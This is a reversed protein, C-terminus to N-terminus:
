YDTLPRCCNPSESKLHRAADAESNQSRPSRLPAQSMQFCGWVGADHTTASCLTCQLAPQATGRHWTKGPNESHCSPMHVCCCILSADHCVTGHQELAAGRDGRRCSEHMAAAVLPWTPRPAASGRNARCAQSNSAAPSSGTAKVAAAPRAWPAM